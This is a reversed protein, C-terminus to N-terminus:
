NQIGKRKNDEDKSKSVAIKEIKFVKMYKNGIKIKDMEFGLDILIDQIYTLDTNIRIGRGAIETIAKAVDSLSLISYKSEQFNDMILDQEIVSQKYYLNNEERLNKEMPTLDEDYGTTNYLAWAQSWLDHINIEKFISEKIGDVTFILWRTNVDDTLFETLNTSGFFSCCRFMKSKQKQFPLRQTVTKKALIAKLKGIGVKKMDDIEELSYIFNETLSILSDKDDKIQEDTFYRTGFPSMLNIIRSKGIEQKRSQLIFAFRNYYEPELACKITRVFQKELMKTFFGVDGKIDLYSAFKAFYDIGDWRHINSFYEKFPNYQRVYDSGLLAVITEKGVKIGLKQASVYLTNDNCETWESEGRRRWEVMHSIIDLRFEYMANFYEECKTIVPKKDPKNEELFEEAKSVQEAEIEMVETEVISPLKEKKPILDSHRMTRNSIEKAAYSFNGNYELQSFVAFPSYCQGAEFPYANSSFVYFLPIGARSKVKGFTASWGKEEKGPRKFYKGTRDCKWGYRKLLEICEPVADTSTNYDDGPRGQSSSSIVKGTPQFEEEYVENYKVCESLIYSREDSTIVPIDTLSGSILEYGQTPSCVVYGKEGRTEIVAVPKRSTADYMMALKKSPSIEDTCRYFVHYGGRLTREYPLGFTDIIAKFDDFVETANNLHNDFDIIELNGSVAGGIIGIGSTPKFVENAKEPTLRVEQLEKWTGLDPSKSNSKIPLVSLGSELLKLAQQIM